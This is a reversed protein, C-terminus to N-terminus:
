AARRGSNDAPLVVPILPNGASGVFGSMLENHFV